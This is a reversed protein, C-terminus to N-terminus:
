ALKQLKDFLRLMGTRLHIGQCAFMEFGDKVADLVNLGQLRFKLGHALAAGLSTNGVTPDNVHQRMM